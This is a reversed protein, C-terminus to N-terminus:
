HQHIPASPRSPRYSDAPIGASLNFSRNHRLWACLIALFLICLLPKMWIETYDIVLNGYGNSGLAVAFILLAVVSKTQKGARDWTVALFALPVALMIYTNSETRPNFLMVYSNALVILLIIGTVRETRRTVWIAAVLTTLAAAVRVPFAYVPAIEIGFKGLMGFLDHWRGDGLDYSIQLSRLGLRYQEAVYAPDFHLFPLAILFAAAASLRWGLAPHIVGALMLFPLCIPKVAFALALLGASRWWRKEALDCAGLMTLALMLTTAQGNRIADAAGPIAILLVLATFRIRNESEILACLRWTAYTLMGASVLIWLPTGFFKGLGWFPTYILISAPLYLFGRGALNYVADGAWWNQAATFYAGTVTHSDPKLWTLMTVVVILVGWAFMAAWSYPYVALIRRQWYATSDTRV